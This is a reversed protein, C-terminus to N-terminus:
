KSGWLALALELAAKRTRFGGYPLDVTLAGVCHPFWSGDTKHAGIGKERAHKVLGRLKYRRVTIVDM